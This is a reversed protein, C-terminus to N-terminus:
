PCLGDSTIGRGCIITREVSKLGFGDGDPQAFVHLRFGLLADDGLGIVDITVEGLDGLTPAEVVVISSVPEDSSAFTEAVIMGLNLVTEATPLEGLDAVVESTADDTQGEYGVFRYNVWGAFNGHEVAIWFSTSLQRTIGHAFVNKATPPIGSVIEYPVGPLERLNLVDDFAVGVVM